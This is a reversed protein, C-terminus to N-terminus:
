EDYFLESFSRMSHAIEGIVPVTYTGVRGAVPM